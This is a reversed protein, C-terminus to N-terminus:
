RRAIAARCEGELTIQVGRFAGGGHDGGRRRRLARSREACVDSSGWSGDQPRSVAVYTVGLHGIVRSPM